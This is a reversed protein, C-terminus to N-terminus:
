LDLANDNLLFDYIGMTTIGAENRRVLIDDGLIVIKKFSDDVKRLSAEEQEVKANDTMKYASQIYYRRSGQNCVFDIELQSRQMVGESNRKLVPVVGVDVNYGRIRLENYILNEMLHTPEHQRFNLRANRLGLDAFYYKAPSEFYRKGKIDYRAAKEVLFSDCIYELYNNVTTSNINEHRISTLTNALKTPNTLSGISSSLVDLISSMVDDHRIQYREKIDRLYTNLFLNKLYESKGSETTYDFLQPLGGYTMYVDLTHQKTDDFASVFEQFSLPYVKIEEGRGRFTTIVDKSLFRANSGTVYVDANRVKLYSNLVDEFEPVYQIEDLMIYHMGSDTLRSDIYELLYDPDRLSKNRRDELDIHIIHKDDVGQSKLWTTYLEFLLYSKGCRRMGTIIKILRNHRSEILKNLYIPREINM